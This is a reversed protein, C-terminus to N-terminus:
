FEKAQRANDSAKQNPAWPGVHQLAENLRKNRNQPKAGEEIAEVQMRSLAQAQRLMDDEEMRRRLFKANEKQYHHIVPWLGAGVLLPVCAYIGVRFRRDFQRFWAM